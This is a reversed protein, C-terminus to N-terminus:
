PLEAAPVQCSMTSSLNMSSVPRKTSKLIEKQKKPDGAAEILKAQYNSKINDVFSGKDVNAGSELPNTLIGEIPAFRGSSKVGFVEDLSVGSPLTKAIDRQIGRFTGLPLDLVQDIKKAGWDYLFNQYAYGNRKGGLFTASSKIVKDSNALQNSTPKPLKPKYWEELSGDYYEALKFLLRSDYFPDGSKTVKGVQNILDKSVTGNEFAQVIKKNKGIEQEIKDKLRDFISSSATQENVNVKNAKQFEDITKDVFGILRRLLTALTDPERPKLPTVTRMLSGLTAVEGMETSRECFELIEDESVADALKQCRHSHTKEIGLGELSFPQVSCGKKPRGRRAVTRLLEGLRRDILLLAAVAKNAQAAKKSRSKAVKAVERFDLLKAPDNCKAIEGRVQDAPLLEGSPM